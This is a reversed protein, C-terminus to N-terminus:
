AMFLYNEATHFPLQLCFCKTLSSLKDLIKLYFWKGKCIVDRCNLCTCKQYDNVNEQACMKDILCLCRFCVACDKSLKKKCASCSHWSKSKKEKVLTPTSDYTNGLCNQENFSTDTENIVANSVDSIKNTIDNKGILEGQYIVDNARSGGVFWFLVMEAKEKDCM